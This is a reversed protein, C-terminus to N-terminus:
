SFGEFKQEVEEEEEEIKEGLAQIKESVASSIGGLDPVRYEDLNLEDLGLEYDERTYVFAGAGAAVVIFGGFLMLLLSNRQNIEHEQKVDSFTSKATEELEEINELASYARYYEGEDVFEQASKVRHKFPTVNESLTENLEADLGERRLDTINSSLSDMSSSYNELMSDVEERQEENARVTINVSESVRPDDSELDVQWEGIQSENPETDFELTRSEEGELEEVTREGSVVNSSVTVNMSRILLDGTNEVTVEFVGSGGSRVSFNEEVSLSATHTAEPRYDFDISRYDSWQGVGDRVRMYVTQSEEDPDPIESTDIQFESDGDLDVENGNGQLIASSFFYEASEVGTGSDTAEFEVNFDDSFVDYGTSTSFSELLPPSSDFTYSRTDSEECNGAEDCAEVSVDVTEGGVEDESLDCSFDEDSSWDTPSNDTEDGDVLCSVRVDSTEDDMGSVTVDVSVEEDTMLVDNDGDAGEVSFEPTDAEFSDDLTYEFGETVENGVEDEATLDVTFTDGQSVDDTDVDFSVTCEGGSGCVDSRSSDDVSVDFTDISLSTVASFEDSVTFDINPNDEVFEKDDGKTIEPESIDIVFEKTESENDEATATVTYDGSNGSGPSFNDYVVYDQGSVGTRNSSENNPGDIEFYIYDDGDNSVNFM